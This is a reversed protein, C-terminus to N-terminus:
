AATRVADCSVPLSQDVGISTIIADACTKYVTMIHKVRRILFTDAVRNQGIGLLMM